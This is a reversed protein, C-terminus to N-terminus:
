EVCIGEAMAVGILSRTPQSVALSPLKQDVRKLVSKQAAQKIQRHYDYETKFKPTFYAGDQPM